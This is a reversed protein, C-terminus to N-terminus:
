AFYKTALRVKKQSHVFHAGNCKGLFGPLPSQKFTTQEFHFNAAHQLQSWGLATLDAPKKLQVEEKIKELSRGADIVKNQSKVFLTKTTIGVKHKITKLFDLVDKMQPTLVVLVKEYNKGPVYFTTLYKFNDLDKKSLLNGEHLQAQKMLDDVKDSDKYHDETARTLDVPHRRCM